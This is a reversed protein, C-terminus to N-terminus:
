IKGRNERIKQKMGKLIVTRAELAMDNTGEQIGQLPVEMGLMKYKSDGLKHYPLIDLSKINKFDGIFYGLEFLSKEDDTMTPVLVHRIWVEKNIEYLYKLFAKINDNPKGTLVKHFDNNIHKIDLMVLDTVSMLKDIKARNQETFTIGSTDLCTHVGLTKLRTFLETLFETQLMPEGGTATVGGNRLFEKCSDYKKIIDEVSYIKGINPTWTDPNHCYQCRLPCGQMFLVLRIGPGDVTGFSDVSHIYADM